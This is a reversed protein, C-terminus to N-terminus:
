KRKNKNKKNLKNKRNIETQNPLQYGEPPKMDHIKILHDLNDEITMRKKHWPCKPDFCYWKKYDIDYQDNEFGNNNM